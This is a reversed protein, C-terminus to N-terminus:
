AFLEVIPRGGYLRQVRGGADLLTADHPVGLAHLLTAHYDQPSVPDRDPFSATADSRGYVAGGQIGGGALLGSYCWPHHERGTGNVIQPRRGFEGVWAVITDALLGRQDLDTLLTVEFDAQALTKAVAEADSRPNALMDTSRYASNGIVLAIRREAALGPMAALLGCVVVVLAIWARM